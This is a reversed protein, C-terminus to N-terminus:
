DEQPPDDEFIFVNHEPNEKIHELAAGITEIEIPPYYRDRKDNCQQCTM